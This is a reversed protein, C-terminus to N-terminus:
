SRWCSASTTTGPSSASGPSPRIEHKVEGLGGMHNHKGLSGYRIATDDSWRLLQPHTGQVHYSENFADLVSKWNAPIIVSRYSRFRMKEFHYHELVSPLPGLFSELSECDPDMNIFVFGGWRGVQIPKLAVDEDTMDPPFDHRDVVEKNAGDLEFRWAHYRCRIEGTAFNGVGTALRTGRHPCTNYFARITDTGSRTVLISQDGIVYELFDGVRPVEEERCAMQWVRPWLREMELDFFDRSVYREKPIVHRATSDVLAGDRAITMVM